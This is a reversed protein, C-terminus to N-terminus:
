CLPTVQNNEMRKEIHHWWISTKRLTAFVKKEIYDDMPMNQLAQKDKVVSYALHCPVRSSVRIHVIRQQIVSISM